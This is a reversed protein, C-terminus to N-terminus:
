FRTRPCSPDTFKGFINLEYMCSFAIIIFYIILLSFGLKRNLQWQNLSIATVLVIVTVFLIIATYMIGSSNILVTSGPNIIATQILWPLGLCLLIDFINSGIGNSIAMDGFGDRAVFVSSLADPVSTGAALLTLGMVTDPIDFTDGTAVVMWVLVYSIGAIWLVSLILTMVYLRRWIGPRRCDPITVFILLSMPLMAVWYIRKGLTDPISLPSVWEEDDEQLAAETDKDLTAPVNQQLPDAVSATESKDFSNFSNTPGVTDAGNSVLPTAETFRKSALFRVRLFIVLGRAASELEDNKCMVVIYCLYLSVFILAEYWEIHDDNLALILALVSICYFSCDRLLPWWTLQIVMGSLLGCLAVIFLINFVASGVITSVGVDSKAFFVGIISTALEPASSGAAMFTAGAVDPKLKLANCLYELSAVFYDDCIVALAAFLYAVIFIHIIVGGQRKQKLSMFDPPFEDISRSTCNPQTALLRRNALRGGEDKSEGVLEDSASHQASLLRMAVVVIVGITIHAMLGAARHRPRCTGRKGAM